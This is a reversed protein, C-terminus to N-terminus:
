SHKLKLSAIEADPLGLEALLKRCENARVHDNMFDALDIRIILAEAIDASTEDGARKLAADLSAAAAKEDNKYDRFRVATAISKQLPTQSKDDAKEWTQQDQEGYGVFIVSNGSVDTLTFRTTGPKMRSIRPLGTNPVKGLNTKFSQTFEQYVKAADSVMVLCGTLSQTVAQAGNVRAFHLQYGGREVVGYQYPRTQKYTIKFGLIEWFSLTEVISACPLIPVTVWDNQHKQLEM